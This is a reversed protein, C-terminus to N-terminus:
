NQGIIGANLELGSSFEFSMLYNKPLYNPEFM